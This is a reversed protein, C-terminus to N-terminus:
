KRNILVLGVAVLGLAVWIAPRIPEDLLGWGLLVALVPSLFSFSAVSSAPYRALLVFWLLFGLTAIFVIQFALGAWHMVEPGRLMDGAYVALLLLIPASVTIQWLLQVEPKVKGLPTMRVTLAIGAWCMAGGLALLDGTLSAAGGGRDALALVVGGMALMLGIGRKRTFTEGPLLFHAAITLWVPMSYFIVSARSVTTLDLASFLLMFEVAFLLGSLIGGFIAARPTSIRIGRFWMWLLIVPIAGASRLGAQFVPGFGDNTVKVVVQNFAFLTAFFILALAGAADMPTKNDMGGLSATQVPSDLRSQKPNCPM